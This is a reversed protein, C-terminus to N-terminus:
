ASLFQFVHHDFETYFFLVLALEGEWGRGDELLFSLPPFVFSGVSFLLSCPTIVVTSWDSYSVVSFFCDLAAMHYACGGDLIETGDMPILTRVLTVFKLFKLKSM